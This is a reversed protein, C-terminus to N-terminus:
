LDRLRVADVGGDEPDIGAVRMFEVAGDPTAAIDCANENYVCCDDATDPVRYGVWVRGRGDSMLRFSREVLFVWLVSIATLV